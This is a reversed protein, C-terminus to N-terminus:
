VDRDYLLLMCILEFLVHGFSVSRFFLSYFCTMLALPSFPFFGFVAPVSTFTPHRPELLPTVVLGLSAQARAESPWRGCFAVTLLAVSWACQLEPGDSQQALLPM